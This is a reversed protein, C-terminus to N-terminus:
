PNYKIGLLQYNLASLLFDRADEKSYSSINLIKQQLLIILINSCLKAILAPSFKLCDTHPCSIFSNEMETSIHAQFDYFLQGNMPNKKLIQQILNQNKEIFDFSGCLCNVLSNYSYNFYDSNSLIREIISKCCYDLLGYKDEFYNYFTARPIMSTDCILQVTIKEFPYETLLQFMTDKLVKLTRMTGIDNRKSLDCKM